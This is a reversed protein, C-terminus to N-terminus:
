EKAFFSDLNSQTANRFTTEMFASNFQSELEFINQHFDPMKELCYAILVHFASPEAEYDDIVSIKELLTLDNRKKKASTAM